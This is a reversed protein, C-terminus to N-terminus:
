TLLCAQRHGKGTGNAPILYFKQGTSLNLSAYGHSETAAHRLLHRERRLDHCALRIYLTWGSFFSLDRAAAAAAERRCCDHHSQQHCAPTGSKEYTLAAAISVSVASWWRRRRASDPDDDVYWSFRM